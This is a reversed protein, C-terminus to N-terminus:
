RGGGIEIELKVGLAAPMAGPLMNGKARGIRLAGSILSAVHLLEANIRRLRKSEHIAGDPEHALRFTQEQGPLPGQSPNLVQVSQTHGFQAQSRNTELDALAALPQSVLERM